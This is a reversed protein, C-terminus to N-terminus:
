LSIDDLSTVFNVDNRALLGSRDLLVAQMGFDIAGHYDNRLSDGIMLSDVVSFGLNETAAAFAMAHPKGFPLESSCVIDDIEGTLAFRDLKGLQQARDGNTLIVVPRGTRQARRLAPLADPFLRWGAEYRELYSQFLTSAEADTLRCGLFERVRERRQDDFSIERAQYRAYHRASIQSWTSAVDPDDVGLEIAWATVAAEAAPQHDILTGDLDFVVARSGIDARM